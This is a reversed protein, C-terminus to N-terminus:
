AYLSLSSLLGTRKCLVSIIDIFKWPRLWVNNWSRKQFSSTEYRHGFFRAAISILCYIKIPNLFYFTSSEFISKCRSVKSNRWQWNLFCLFKLSTLFKSFPLNTWTQAIRIVSPRRYCVLFCPGSVRFEIRM